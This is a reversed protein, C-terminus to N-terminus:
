SLVKMLHFALCTRKGVAVQLSYVHVDATDMELLWIFRGLKWVLRADRVGKQMLLGMDRTLDTM